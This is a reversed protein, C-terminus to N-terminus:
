GCGGKRWIRCRTNGWMLMMCGLSLWGSHRWTGVGHGWERCTDEPAAPRWLPLSRPHSKNSPSGPPISRARAHGRQGQQPHQPPMPIGSSRQSTSVGNSQQNQMSRVSLPSAVESGSTRQSRPSQSDTSERNGTSQTGHSLVSRTNSLSHTHTHSHPTAASSMSTSTGHSPRWFQFPYRSSVLHGLSSM